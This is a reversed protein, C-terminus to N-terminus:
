LEYYDIIKAATEEVSLFTNDVTLSEHGNVPSFLEHKQWIEHLIKLNDLKRYKLRSANAVREEIVSREATLLVFNIEGGNEKVAKVLKAVNADDSDKAYCFTHILNVNQKAAEAITEIRFQHVLRWFPETGFDFVSQVADITLHNHFVRFNTQRAVETAVTLKGVAPSGYILLLKM